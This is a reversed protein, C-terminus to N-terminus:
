KGEHYKYHQPHETKVATKGGELIWTWSSDFASRETNLSRFRFVAGVYQSLMVVVDSNTPVDDDHFEEFDDFPKFSELMPNLKALLTNILKLKFKNVGDNAKKKSLESMEALMTHLQQEIKEFELVDEESKM